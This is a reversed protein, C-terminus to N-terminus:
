SLVQTTVLRLEMLINRLESGSLGVDKEKREETELKNEHRNAQHERNAQRRTNLRSILSKIKRNQKHHRNAKKPARQTGEAQTEQTSM